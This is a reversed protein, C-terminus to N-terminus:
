AVQQTTPALTTKQAAPLRVREIEQDAALTAEAVLAAAPSHQETLEYVIIRGIQWVPAPHKRNFQEDIKARAEATLPREPNESASVRNEGELRQWAGILDLPRRKKHRTAHFAQEILFQTIAPGTAHREHTAGRLQGILYIQHPEASTQEHGQRLWTRLATLLPSEPEPQTDLQDEERRGHEM